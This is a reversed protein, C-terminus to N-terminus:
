ASAQRNLRVRALLGYAAVGFLADGATTVVRTLIALAALAEPDSLPAGLVLLVSERVGLGGPAVPVLFGAIWALMFVATLRAPVALDLASAALWWVILAFGGFFLMQLGAAAIRPQGSALTLGAGALLLVALPVLGPAGGALWLAAAALLAAPIHMGAEFLSAKMMAAQSWGAQAGLVQRSAYQFVSGPIYKAVVGPGYIRVAAAWGGATAPRAADSCWARALLSLLGAYLVAGVAARAWDSVGLRAAILALDLRALALVLYAAAAALMAYGGWRLATRLAPPVAARTGVPEAM